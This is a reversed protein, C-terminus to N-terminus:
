LSSCSGVDRRAHAAEAPNDLQISWTGHVARAGTSHSVHARDVSARGAINSPLHGNGTGGRDRARVYGVAEDSLHDVGVISVSKPIMLM